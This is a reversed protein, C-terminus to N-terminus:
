PQEEAGSAPLDPGSESETAAPAFAGQLAYRASMYKLTNELVEKEVELREVTSDLSLLAQQQMYNDQLLSAIFFSLRTPYLDTLEPPSLEVEDVQVCRQM